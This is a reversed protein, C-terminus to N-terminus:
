LIIKKKNEVDYWPHVLNLYKIVNKIDFLIWLNSNLTIKIKEKGCLKKKYVISYITYLIGKMLKKFLSKFQILCNKKVGNLLEIRKIHNIAEGVILKLEKVGRFLFM